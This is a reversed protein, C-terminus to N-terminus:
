HFMKWLLSHHPQIVIATTTSAQTPIGSIVGTASNLTLGPPLAGASISWKYPPKGGSATLQASYPVGVEGPPLSSTAVRLAHKNKQALVPMSFLLLAALFLHKM